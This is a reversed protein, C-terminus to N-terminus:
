VFEEIVSLKGAPTTSGADIVLAYVVQPLRRPIIVVPTGPPEVTVNEPKVTGPALRLVPCGPEQEILKIAFSVALLPVRVFVTRGAFKV